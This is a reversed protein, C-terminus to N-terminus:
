TPHDARHAWSKSVLSLVQPLKNDHENNPDRHIERSGHSRSGCTKQSFDTLPNSGFCMCGSPSYSSFLFKAFERGEKRARGKEEYLKNCRPGLCPKVKHGKLTGLM